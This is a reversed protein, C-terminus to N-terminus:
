VLPNHMSLRLAPSPLAYVTATKFKPPLSRIRTWLLRGAHECEQTKSWIKTGAKCKSGENAVNRYLGSFAKSKHSSLATFNFGYVAKRIASCSCWARSLKNRVTGGITFHWSDTPGDEIVNISPQHWVPKNYESVCLNISSCTAHRPNKLLNFRIEAKNSTSECIHLNIHMPPVFHLGAM